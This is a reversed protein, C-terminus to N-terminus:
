QVGHSWFKRKKLRGNKCLVKWQLHGLGRNMKGM